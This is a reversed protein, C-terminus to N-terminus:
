YPRRYRVRVQAAPEHRISAASIVAVRDSPLFRQKLDILRPLFAPADPSAHEVACRSIAIAGFDPLPFLPGSPNQQTAAQWDAPREVIWEATSGLVLEKSIQVTAFHHTTRNVVHLRVTTPDNKRISLSCLIVDGRRIPVGSITWPLNDATAASNREWWQWWLGHSEQGNDGLTHVSGVQPMSQTWLKRGDFGIWISCRFPEGQDGATRLGPELAPARWRGVVRKFRNGRLATVCAGSWNRSSGLRGGGHVKFAPSRTTAGVLAQVQTPQQSSARVFTPAPSMMEIWHRYLEPQLKPDPRAPLWYHELTDADARLPDFGKPPLPTEDVVRLGERHDRAQM